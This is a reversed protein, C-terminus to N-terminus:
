ELPNNTRNIIECNEDSSCGHVNWTDPNYKLLWTNTFYDWFKDMQSAYEGEDTKFRVYAIGKKPIDEIPLETLINATGDPGILIKILDQPIYCKM